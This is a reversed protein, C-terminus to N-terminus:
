KGLMLARFHAIDADTFGASKVFAVAQENINGGPYKALMKLFGDFKDYNEQIATAIMLWHGPRINTSDLNLVQITDAECIESIEPVRELLAESSIDPVLGHETKVAAITGGTAIMLIKKM